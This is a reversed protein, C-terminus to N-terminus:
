GADGITIDTGFRAGGPLVAEERIRRSVRSAISVYNGEGSDNGTEAVSMARALARVGSPPTSWLGRGEPQAMYTLIFEYWKGLDGTNEANGANTQSVGVEPAVGDPVGSFANKPVSGPVSGVAGSFAEAASQKVDLVPPYRLPSARSVVDDFEPGANISRYIDGDFYFEFRQLKHARAYGAARGTGEDPMSFVVVGGLNAKVFPHYNTPRQDIALLHVGAAGAESALVSMYEDVKQLTGAQQARVRQAGYEDVVVVLRPPRVVGRLSALDKAGHEALLADRRVYEAHLAALAEAFSTPKRVDVLEAWDAALRWNKFGRPDLVAVHASQALLGAVLTIAAATKGSQTQGHIRMHPVEALNWVATEDSGAQGFVIRDRESQRVAEALSLQPRSLVQAEVAVPDPAPLQPRQPVIIEPEKGWGKPPKEAWRADAPRFRDLMRGAGDAHKLEAAITALAQDGPTAAQVRAVLARGTAVARQNDWGAGGDYEVLGTGPIWAAASGVMQNPDIIVKHKRPDVQILPYSGDRPRLSENRRKHVYMWAVIVGAVLLGAPVLAVAAVLVWGLAVLYAGTYFLIGDITDPRVVAAATVLFTLFTFLCIWFWKM